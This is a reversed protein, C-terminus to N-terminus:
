VLRLKQVNNLTKKIKKVIREQEELPPIGIVIPYIRKGSIVPQATSSSFNRLNLNILLYYLWELNLYEKNFNVKFANDTVWSKSSTLHVSGCYYGVRGIILTDAETNYQDYRGVIGNGGYVNYEGQDIMNKKTLNTGSSVKLLDGLKAATWSAPLDYSILEDSVSYIIKEPNLDIVIEHSRQEVLKGEMAYQLISREMNTPFNTNLNTLKEELLEYQDIKKFLEEIKDVIRYQEDLPPIPIVGSNLNKDNIAPYAVGVMKNEVYTNFFPSKLVYYLYKNFIEIPEMVLFATSAIAELDFNKDVICINQLYPRVTSYLVTGKRVVKRARSPADESNIININDSIRGNNNDISAVDIYYFKSDPKKQGFNYVIDKLRVWEWSNSIEFPIEDKSIPPLSKERKIVKEKILRDKQDKIRKILTNAPEDTDNQPVLKGEVAYQLISNKLDQAKM